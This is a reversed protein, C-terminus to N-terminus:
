ASTLMGSVSSQAGLIEGSGSLFVFMVGVVNCQIIWGGGDSGGHCVGAKLPIDKGKISLTEARATRFGLYSKPEGCGGRSGDRLWLFGSHNRYPWGRRLLLPSASQTQLVCLGGKSEKRAPGEVLVEPHVLALKPQDLVLQPFPLPLQLEIRTGSHPLNVHTSPSKRAIDIPPLKGTSKACNPRGAAKLMHLSRGRPAIQNRRSGATPPSVTRVWRRTVLRCRAM